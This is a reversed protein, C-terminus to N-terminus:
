SMVPIHDARFGADAACWEANAHIGGRAVSRSQRVSLGIRCKGKVKADEKSHLAWSNDARARPPHVIAALAKDTNAPTLLM